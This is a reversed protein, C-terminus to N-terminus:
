ENSDQACRRARRRFERKGAEDASFCLGAAERNVHTIPEPDPEKTLLARVEDLVAKVTRQRASGNHWQLLTSLYPAGDRSINPHFMRTAFRVRPSLEPWSPPFVFEVQFYGGEWLTNEPGLLTLEWVLANQKSSSISVNDVGDAALEDFQEALARVSPALGIARDSRLLAAQEVGAARWGDHEADLQAKVALLRERVAKWGFTGDMCNAACEFPMMKFQRGDHVASNASAIWGNLVDLYNCMHVILLQKRLDAFAPTAGNPPARAQLTDEMTDVVAVRLTEHAIKENYREVDGSGDDDEFSPENHYPKDHMLSQISLLVSLVNQVSSWQEGSSESKWTGLISLCVKGNNYLNPNFRVTGSSTTTILVRPPSNPYDKPFRMDFHFMGLGYPSHPPGVILATWHLIDDEDALAFVSPTSQKALLQCEALLRGQASM